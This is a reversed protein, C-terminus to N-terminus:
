PARNLEEIMPQIQETFVQPTIPGIHKLRIIGTKDILFTEPVGYVGYDIGVNGAIDLPVLSYPNGHQELWRGARQHVLTNETAADLRDADIEADGRVEKYNLGVIPVSGKAALEVLIPHEARCAVCWSAWVNMLWVRGKMDAPSFTAPQGSLTPVKFDPAPKGIFPSPIEHPDRTLGVALLVVLAAFVPLIWLFKNKM